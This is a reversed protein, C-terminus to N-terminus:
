DGFQYDFLRLDRGYIEEVVARMAPTYVDTYKTPDSSTRKTKRDHILQTEVGLQDAIATFSEGLSEFRGVYDLQLTGSPDCVFRHQPRFHEHNRATSPTLWNLVFDEFDAYRNVETKSDKRLSIDTMGSHPIRDAGRRFFQYASRLRDYPNRTVAFKFLRDFTARDYIMQYTAVPMHNGEFDGFLSRGISTGGTKPIHIFICGLSEAEKISLGLKPRELRDFHRMLEYLEAYAPRARLYISRRADHPLVWAARAGADKVRVLIADRDPM